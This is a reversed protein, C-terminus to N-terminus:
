ISHLASIESSSAVSDGTEESVENDRHILDYYKNRRTIDSIFLNDSTNIEECHFRKAFNMLDKLYYVKEGKIVILNDRCGTFASTSFTTNHGKVEVAKLGCSNFADAYVMEVTRPMIVKVMSECNVFAKNEITKIGEHIMVGKLKSCNMFMSEPITEIDFPLAVQKLSRCNCYIGMGMVKVGKPMVSSTLKECYAFAFDGIETLKASLFIYALNPCGYFAYDDIKTINEPIIINTIGTLGAFANCGITHVDKWFFKPYEELIRLDKERVDLLVGNEKKM